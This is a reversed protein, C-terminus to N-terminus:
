AVFVLILPEGVINQISTLELYFLSMSELRPRYFANFSFMFLVSWECSRLSIKPSKVGRLLFVFAFYDNAKGEISFGLM